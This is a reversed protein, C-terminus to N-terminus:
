RPGSELAEAEATRGEQLLLEAYAERYNGIRRRTTQRRAAAGLATLPMTAETAEARSSSPDFLNSPDSASM